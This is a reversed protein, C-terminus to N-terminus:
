LDKFVVSCISHFMHTYFLKCKVFMLLNGGAMLASADVSIRSMYMKKIEMEFCIMKWMIGECSNLNM